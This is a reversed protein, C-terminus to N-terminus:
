EGEEEDFGAELEEQPSLKPPKGQRGGSKKAVTKLISDVKKKAERQKGETEAKKDDAKKLGAEALYRGFYRVVDAPKDNLLAQIAPPQKNRWEKHEKSDHLKQSDVSLKDDVKDILRQAAVRNQFETLKVTSPIINNQVLADVVSKAAIAMLTKAEPYESLFSGDGKLDIEMGNITAKDPIIADPIVDSFIKLDEATLPRIDDQIEAPKATEHLKAQEDLIEQGRKLDEDEEEIEEGEPEEAVEETVEETEEKVVADDTSEDDSDFGAELESDGEEVVEDTTVQETVEVSDDPM